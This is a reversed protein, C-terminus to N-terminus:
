FGHERLFDETLRSQPAPAGQWPSLFRAVYKGIMDTELNVRVGTKWGHATTNDWTEPIVNVTFFDAGCENVTLSIGDLAVSGKAIIAAGLAPDSSFTVIRSEGAMAVSRVEALGDVHGSVLHGGLRDGLALARELNVRSGAKLGNLTTLRLTEASAYCTYWSNDRGFEEVTLCAGNLAISEGKTLAPMDCLVRVRFRADGGNAAAGARERSVIEGLGQVIGTFM